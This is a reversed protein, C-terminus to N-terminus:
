KFIQHCSALRKQKIHYNLVFQINMGDCEYLVNMRRWESLNREMEEDGTPEASFDKRTHRGSFQVRAKVVVRHLILQAIGGKSLEAEGL